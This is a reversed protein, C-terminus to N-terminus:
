PSCFPLYSLNLRLLRFHRNVYGRSLISLHKFTRAHVYRKRPESPWLGLLIGLLGLNGVHKGRSKLALAEYSKNFAFTLRTTSMLAFAEFVAAATSLFPIFISVDPNPPIRVCAGLAPTWPKAM